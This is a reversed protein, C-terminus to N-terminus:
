ILVSALLAICSVLGVMPVWSPVQFVDGGVTHGSRKLRILALNVLSFVILVVFSTTEALRTIPLFLALALILAVVVITANVPTRTRPHVAALKKPLNDQRALGYLIRSAMIMQILVGNLTAIIAIMNFSGTTFGGAKVFVLALPASSTVLKDMPVALIVVTVVAIYILTSLVLTLIIARPMTRGPNKVEEAVNAIDEFGVFAFFALLSAAFIGSWPALELPPILQHATSLLADNTSLGIYIVLGLGSLEILTFISALVVSEVIGWLGVLGLLLIVVVTLLLSPLPIFYQLYSVAGISVAASSIIGSAAVLLGVVLSLRSSNFGARVYAAEGASVPMRTSLEAYSFGTFGTVCAALLFSVPAYYGAKAATAGVLVYIGAGVTVGLGYLTVLPLTLARKLKAPQHPPSPLPEKNGTM